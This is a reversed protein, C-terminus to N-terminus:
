QDGKNIDVTLKREVACQLYKKLNGEQLDYEEKFKDCTAGAKFNVCRCCGALVRSLLENRSFVYGEGSM